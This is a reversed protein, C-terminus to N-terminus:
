KLDSQRFEKVRKVGRMKAHSKSIETRCMDALNPSKMEHWM